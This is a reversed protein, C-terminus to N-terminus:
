KMKKRKILYAGLVKDFSDRTDVQIFDIKLKGCGLMIQRYYTEMTKQYDKKVAAPMVTLSEGTEADVFRYPQDKFDFRRETEHDSVHFLLIEHRNHKLHQLAEFIGELNQGQQFMDSFIIVLSRKHIKDAILHINEAISSRPAKPKPATLMTHLEGLLQNLHLRTSKQQTQIRIKDDFSILGVADRQKVLLFSLAAAAYVSFRLKELGPRPYYMSASSDILLTCRLNTEEEYQKTYLRDTRAFVKWDINKTSEGYNYLKHEAFEVSFGHYPSRHLGTIFGEVMERALLELNEFQKITSLELGM